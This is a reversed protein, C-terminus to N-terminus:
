QFTSAKFCTEPHIFYRKANNYWGVDKWLGGDEGSRRHTRIGTRRNEAGLMPAVGKREGEWAGRRSLRPRAHALLCRWVQGCRLRGPTGVSASCLDLESGCPPPGCSVHCSRQRAEHVVPAARLIMSSSRQGCHLARCGRPIMPPLGPAVHPRRLEDRGCSHSDAGQGRPLRVIRLRGRRLRTLLRQPIRWVSRLGLSPSAPSRRIRPPMSPPLTPRPLGAM